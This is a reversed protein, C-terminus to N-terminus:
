RMTALLRELVGGFALSSVKRGKVGADVRDHGVRQFGPRQLVVMHGIGQSRCVSRMSTATIPENINAPNLTIMSSLNGAVVFTGPPPAALLAGAVPDFSAGFGAAVHRFCHARITIVGPLYASLGWRAM